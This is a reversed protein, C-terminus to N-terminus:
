AVSNITRLDGSWGYSPTGQCHRRRLASLDVNITAPALGRQELDGRYAQLLAKSFPEM